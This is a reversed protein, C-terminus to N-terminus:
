SGVRKCVQSGYKSNIENITEDIFDRGPYDHFMGKGKGDSHGKDVWKPVFGGVDAGSVVSKYDLGEWTIFREFDNGKITKIKDRLQYSRNYTFPKYKNYVNKQVKSKLTIEIDKSVKELEKQAEAMIYKEFELEDDM